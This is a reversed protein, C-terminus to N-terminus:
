VENAAQTSFDSSGCSHNHLATACIGMLQCSLTQQAASDMVTCHVMLSAHIHRWIQDFLPDAIPSLNATAHVSGIKGQSSWSKWRPKCQCGLPRSRPMPRPWLRTLIWEPLMRMLHRRGIGKWRQRSITLRHTCIAHNEMNSGDVYTEPNNKDTHPQGQGQRNPQVPKRSCMQLLGLAFLYLFSSAGLTPCTSFYRIFSHSLMCGAHVFCVRANWCSTTCCAVSPM